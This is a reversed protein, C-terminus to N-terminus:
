ASAVPSSFPASPTAASRSTTARSPSRWCTARASWRPSRCEVRRAVGARAQGRHHLEAARRARQHDFIAPHPRQPPAPRYASGAPLHAVAGVAAGTRARHRRRRRWKRKVMVRLTAQRGIVLDPMTALDLSVPEYAPVIPQPRWSPRECVARHHRAAPSLIDNFRRLTAREDAPRPVLGRIVARASDVPQVVFLCRSGDLEVWATLPAVLEAAYGEAMLAALTM